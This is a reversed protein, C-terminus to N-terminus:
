ISKITKKMYISNYSSDELFDPLSHKEEFQFKSYFDVLKDKAVLSIHKLGHNKAVNEIENILASAFGRGRYKKDVAIFIIYLTDGNINYQLPFNSIDTFKQFKKENWIISEIYAVVKNTKKEKIVLFGSNFMKRRKILIDETAANSHEIESEIKYIKQIDTEKAPSIEFKDKRGKISFEKAKYKTISNNTKKHGEFYFILGDINDKNIYDVFYTYTNDKEIKKNITIQGTICHNKVEFLRHNILEFPFNIYITVNRINKIHWHDTDGTNLNITQYWCFYKKILFDDKYKIPEPFFIKFLKQNSVDKIISHNLKNNNRDYAIFDLTNADQISDATTSFSYDDILLNLNNNNGNKEYKAYYHGDVDIRASFCAKNISLKGQCKEINSYIRDIISKKLIDKNYEFRTLDSIIFSIWNLRMNLPLFYDSHSKYSETNIINEEYKPPIDKFGIKGAKGCDKDILIRTYKLFWELTGHDNKLCRFQQNKLIDRFDLKSNLISGCFIIKDFKIVNYKRMAQFVIYTGFSHAIAFPLSDLETINKSYFDCFDQIVKNRKRKSLFDLFGFYGYDFPIVEINYNKLEDMKHFQEYWRNQRRIGHITFLKM